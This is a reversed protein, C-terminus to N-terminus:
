STPEEPQIRSFTICTQEAAHCPTGCELRKYNDRRLVAERINVWDASLASSSRSM